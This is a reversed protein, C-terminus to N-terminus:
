AAKIGISTEPFEFKFDTLRYQGDLVVISSQSDDANVDAVNTDAVNVVLDLGFASVLHHFHTQDSVSSTSNEVSSVNAWHVMPLVTQPPNYRISHVQSPHKKVLNITSADHLHMVGSAM